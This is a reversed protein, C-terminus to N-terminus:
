APLVAVRTACPADGAVSHAGASAGMTAALAAVLRGGDDLSTRFPDPLQRRSPARLVLDGPFEVHRLGSHAPDELPFRVSANGRPLLIGIALAHLEASLNLVHIAFRQPRVFAALLIVRATALPLHEVRVSVDRLGHDLRVGRLGRAVRSKQLGGCPRQVSPRREVSQVVM